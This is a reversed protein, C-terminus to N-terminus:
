LPNLAKQKEASGAREGIFLFVFKYFRKKPANVPMTCHQYKGRQYEKGFRVQTAETV